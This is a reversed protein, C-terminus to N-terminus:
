RESGRNLFLVPWAGLIVSLGAGSYLFMQAMPTDSLILLVIWLCFAGCLTVTAFTFYYPNMDTYRMGVWKDFFYELRYFRYLLQPFNAFVVSVLLYATNLSILVELLRHVLTSSSHNTM